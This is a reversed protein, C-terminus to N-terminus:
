QQVTHPLYGLAEIPAKPVTPQEQPIVEPTPVTIEAPETPKIETMEAAEDISQGASESDAEKPLFDIGFADEPPEFTFTDATIKPNFDWKSLVAAYQPAGPLTKYTIVVKMLLPQENQSFWVQYDRNEGTFLVQYAPTRNVMNAGVFVADQVNATFIPCPDSVLLNAMPLTFGYKEELNAVVQDISPAAPKTAYLGLDTTYLTFSEGDYYFRTNREDGTYDSRVKNPKNVSLAQYASYQVKAGSDLVNDYTVDMEVTFSKQDRLFSCTENVLQDITKLNEESSQPSPEATQAQVQSVGVLPISYAVLLSVLFRSNPLM